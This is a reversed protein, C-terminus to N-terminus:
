GIDMLDFRSVKQFKQNFANSLSEYREDNEAMKEYMLSPVKYYVYINKEYLLFRSHSSLKRSEKKMKKFLPNYIWDSGEEITWGSTGTNRIWKYVIENM